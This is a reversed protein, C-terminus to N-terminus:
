QSSVPVFEASPPTVSASMATDDGTRTGASEYGTQVTGMVDPVSAVIIPTDGGSCKYSNMKLNYTGSGNRAYAMLYYTSGRSPNAVSVYSNPGYSYYNTNCQSNKPNCDKFVYFDFLSSGSCSSSEISPNGASAVIIPTNGGCSGSSTMSWEIKSRGDTPIYYGVVNAQGQNLFGTQTDTKYVGCPAPQTPYLTPYATPYPHPYSCSSSVRLTYSGSGSRGYLMLCWTGSSLAMSATGSNGYAVKDYNYRISNASPCPGYRSKKQAYLDFRGGYNSTISATGPCDLTFEYVPSTQGQWLSSQRESLINLEEALAPTIVLTCLILMLCTISITYYRM